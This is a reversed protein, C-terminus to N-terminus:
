SIMLGEGEEREGKTEEEKGKSVKESEEKESDDEEEESDESSESGLKYPHFLFRKYTRKRKKKKKKETTAGTDVAEEGEKVAEGDDVTMEEERHPQFVTVNPGPASEMKRLPIASSIAAKWDGGNNIFALLTEFVACTCPLLTVWQYVCFCLSVYIINMRKSVERCAWPDLDVAHCYVWSVLVEM